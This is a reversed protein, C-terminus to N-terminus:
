VSGSLPASQSDAGAPHQTIDYSFWGAYGQPVHSTEPDSHEGLYCHLEFNSVNPQHQESAVILIVNRPKSELLMLSEVSTMWPAQYVFFSGAPAGALLHAALRVEGHTAFTPIGDNAARTLAAFAMQLAGNGFLHVVDTDLDCFIGDLEDLLIRV